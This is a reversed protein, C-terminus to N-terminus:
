SRQPFISSTVLFDHIRFHYQNGNDIDTPIRERWVKGLIHFLNHSQFSGVISHTQRHLMEQQGNFEPKPKRKKQGSYLSPVTKNKLFSHGIFIGHINGYKISVINLIDFWVNRKFIEGM